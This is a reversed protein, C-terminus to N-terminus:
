IVRVTKSSEAHEAFFTSYSDLDPYAFKTFNWPAKELEDEERKKAAARAWEEKLHPKLDLETEVEKQEASCKRVAKM